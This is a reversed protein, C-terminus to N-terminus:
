RHKSNKNTLAKNNKKKKKMKRKQSKSGKLKRFPVFRHLNNKRKSSDLSCKSAGHNLIAKRNLETLLTFEEEDPDVSSFRSSACSHVHVKEARGVGHDLSMIVMSVVLYAFVFM